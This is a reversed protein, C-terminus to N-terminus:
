TGQIRVATGTNARAANINARAATGRRETETRAKGGGSAKKHKRECVAQQRDTQQKNQTLMLDKGM